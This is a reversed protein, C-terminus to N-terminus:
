HVNATFLPNSGNRAGYYDGFAILQRGVVCCTCRVAVIICSLFFRRRRERM